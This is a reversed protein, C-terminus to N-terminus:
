NKEEHAEETLGRDAKAKQAFRCTSFTAALASLSQPSDEQAPTPYENIVYCDGRLSDHELLTTLAYSLSAFKHPLALFTTM